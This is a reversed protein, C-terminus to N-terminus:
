AVPISHFNKVLSLFRAMLVALDCMSYATDRIARWSILSPRLTISHGENMNITVEPTEEQSVRSM